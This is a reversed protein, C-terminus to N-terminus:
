ITQLVTTLVALGEELHGTRLLQEAARRQLELTEGPYAEHVLALYVQASEAGRGANALADGLKFRLAREENPNLRGLDLAARYLKAARDFALAQAAEDAARAYYNGAREYQRAGHWHIAVVEPDASGAAEFAEALRRHHAQLRDPPLYAVVTERVR